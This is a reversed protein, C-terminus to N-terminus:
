NELWWMIFTENNYYIAIHICTATCKWNKTISVVWFSENFLSIVIAIGILTKTNVENQSVFWLTELMKTYQSFIQKIKVVHYENNRLYSKYQSADTSLLLNYLSWINQFHYILFQTLHREWYIYSFMLYTHELWFYM